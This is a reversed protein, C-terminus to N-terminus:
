IYQCVYCSLSITKGLWMHLAYSPAPTTHLLIYADGTYFNGYLQKPVAVLDLNEVRWVQLGPQKGATQFEKHVVM